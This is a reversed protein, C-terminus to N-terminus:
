TTLNGRRKWASKWVAQPTTFHTTVTHTIERNNQVRNVQRRLPREDGGCRNVQRRLPGEDGGCRDAHQVAAKEAAM